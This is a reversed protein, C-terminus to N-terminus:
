RPLFENITPEFDRIFQEGRATAEDLDSDVTVSIRIFSADRRRYLASNIIEAMKLAYDDSLSRDRVQYWYLFLEKSEGKQYVARVLNLTGGPIALTGRKASVEYWGSGPLCHKPSHIGGSNKGGSHYGIYLNVSKGGAGKYQRFLYETPRLVNLVEASFETRNLMQWSQVKEPFESFPRTTPINIDRHFTIVLGAAAFLVYVIIFRMMSNM